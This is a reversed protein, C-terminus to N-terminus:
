LSEMAVERRRGQSQARWHETFPAGCRLHDAADLGSVTEGGIVFDYDAWKQYFTVLEARRARADTDEAALTKGWLKREAARQADLRAQDERRTRAAAAAAKRRRTRGIGAEIAALQALAAPVTV